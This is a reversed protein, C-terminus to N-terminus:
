NRIRSQVLAVIQATEEPLGLTIDEVRAQVQRVFLQDELSALNIDVNLLASQVTGQALLAAVGIDSVLLRSCRPALSACLPILSAAAHAITLPIDAAEKSMDQIADKRTAADADTTRPLKYAASLRIFIDIDAQALDQFQTRLKEAQAHITRYADADDPLKKRGLTIACVMSILGAALAGNLAAVSGGGPTPAPSALTDLFSGLTQERLIDAM